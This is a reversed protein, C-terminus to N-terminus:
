PCTFGSLVAGPAGPLVVCAGKTLSGTVTTTSAPGLSLTGSIALTTGVSLRGLQTLNGAVPASSGLTVGSASANTIELNQFRSSGAAPYYFSV